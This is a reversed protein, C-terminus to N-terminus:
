VVFIVNKSAAYGIYKKETFIKRKDIRNKQCSAIPFSDVTYEHVDTEKKFILSLFRFIAEWCAWPIRHIRRNLRSNSLMKPFLRLKKCLYRSLKYNGQFFKATVICFAIVEANSMQIQPNDVLELAKLIEDSIVYVITAYMEM